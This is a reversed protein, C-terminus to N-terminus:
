TMKTDSSRDQDKATSNAGMGPTVKRGFTIFCWEALGSWIRPMKCPMQRSAIVALPSVALTDSSTKPMEVYSMCKRSRCNQGVESRGAQPNVDGQVLVGADLGGVRHHSFRVAREGGLLRGIPAGIEAAGRKM